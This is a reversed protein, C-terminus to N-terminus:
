HQRPLSIGAVTVQEPTIVVGPTAEASHHAMRELMAADEAQRHEAAVQRERELLAQASKREALEEGLRDAMRLNDGMDRRLSEAAADHSHEKWGGLALGVSGVAWLVVGVPPCAWAAGMGALLSAGGIRAVTCWTHATSAERTAAADCQVYRDHLLAVKDELESDTLRRPPAPAHPWPALPAILNFGVHMM